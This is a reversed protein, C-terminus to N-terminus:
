VYYVEQEPQQARQEYSVPQRKQLFRMATSWHVQAGQQLAYATIRKGTTIQLHAYAEELREACPQQFGDTSQERRRLFKSATIFSVEALRALQAATVRQGQQQLYLSARELQEQKETTTRSVVLAVHEPSPAETQESQGRELFQQATRPSHMETTRTHKQSPTVEQAMEEVAPLNVRGQAIARLRLLGRRRAGDVGHPTMGLEAAVERVTRPRGDQELLGYLRRLIEQAPAPLCSLFGEVQAQTHREQEPDRVSIAPEALYQALTTGEDNRIMELSAPSFRELYDGRGDQRM